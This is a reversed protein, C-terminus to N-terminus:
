LCLFDFAENTEGVYGKKFQVTFCLFGKRSFLDVNVSGVKSAHVGRMSEKTPYKEGIGMTVALNNIEEEDELSILVPFGRWVGAIWGEGGDRSFGYREVMEM